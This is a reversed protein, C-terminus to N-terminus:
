FLEVSPAFINAKIESKLTLIKTIENIKMFM